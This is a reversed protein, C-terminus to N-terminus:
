KYLPILRLVCNLKPLKMVEEFPYLNMRNIICTTFCLDRGIITHLWWKEQSRLDNLLSPINEYIHVSLLRHPKLQAHLYVLNFLIKAM